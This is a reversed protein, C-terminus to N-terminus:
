YMVSSVHSPSSAHGQAPMARILNLRDPRLGFHETMWPRPLLAVVGLVIFCFSCGDHMDSHPVKFM